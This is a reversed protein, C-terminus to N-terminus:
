RGLLYCAIATASAANLSDVGAAMPIRVWHTAAAFVEPSLGNRESGILVARRDHNLRLEDIAPADPDPTLAILDLDNVGMSELTEASLLEALDSTRAHPLAFATGMAVRLSRRALPDASSHDTIVADFSLAAANRIISGVNAPNDVGDLIVIRRSRALLDIANPRPPRLFLAVIRHPVGLGTIMRRVTEDGAFVNIPGGAVRDGDILRQVLDPLRGADALVAVPRCGADLAREVVLDGEALFRGAGADDRREARNSLARENLRFEALAPDELSTVPIIVAPM